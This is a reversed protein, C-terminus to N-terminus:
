IINRPEEKKVSQQAPPCAWTLRPVSPFNEDDPVILNTRVTSTPYLIFQTGM